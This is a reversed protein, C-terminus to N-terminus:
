PFKFLLPFFFWFDQMQNFFAKLTALRRKVTKLKFGPFIDELYGKLVNKDIKHLCNIQHSKKCFVLFQKLDIEYSIITKLSM